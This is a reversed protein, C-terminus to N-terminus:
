HAAAASAGAALQALADLRAIVGAYNTLHRVGTFEELVRQKAARGLREALVPDELPRRLVAAFAELDHPDEVLLGHEGDTIQDRIGGVASAVVPRGKWMAETVTLGFGEELSKQVVVAAHRQLANVMAANEEVDTMPLCALHVRARVAHPLAHWAAMVGEFVGRAEPDDAVSTVAPGALVLHARLAPAERVLHAFGHMVGLPDKLPDWRSVQVVLPVDAAPAHGLRVIDALRDVRATVGDHRVFTPIPDDPLRELLGAHALIARAAEPSMEQNKVAFVDISPRIITSREKLFEPVYSQRTFVTMPVQLLYPRLFLWGSAVDENHLDCGIHSRWAVRAGLALMAPALGATQPDHLIVVDGPRVVASLEDENDELVRRYLAHQERGLPSGDGASGHLAHHLRKTLHFFEPTGEIVMWRVDVGAGRGYGILSPLMEAVGGGRATSSVNWFTRGEMSQRAAEVVSQFTRWQPEPMHSAFRELSRADVYVQTARLM